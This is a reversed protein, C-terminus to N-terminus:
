VGVWRDVSEFADEMREEMGGVGEGDSKLKGARDLEYREPM